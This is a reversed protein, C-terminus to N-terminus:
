KHKGGVSSVKKKGTYLYAYLVDRAWSNELRSGPCATNGFKRHPYIALPSIGHTTCWEDLLAGLADIQQPTPDTKSFNGVLCVSLSDYNHGLADCDRELDDRAVVVTGDREIVRHYGIYSGSESKAFGRARHWENIAAAQPTPEEAASHHVIIYQPQYKTAM